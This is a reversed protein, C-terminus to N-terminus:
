PRLDDLVDALVGTIQDFQANLEAEARVPRDLRVNATVYANGWWTAALVTPRATAGLDATVLGGDGIGPLSLLMNGTSAVALRATRQKESWDGALLHARDIEISVSVEPGSASSGYACSIVYSVADDHGNPQGFPGDVIRELGHLAPCGGAV